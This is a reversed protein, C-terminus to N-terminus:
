NSKRNNRFEMEIKKFEIELNNWEEDNQIEELLFKDGNLTYYSALLEMENDFTTYVIIKKGYLGDLFAIINCDIVQGNTTTLKDRKEM